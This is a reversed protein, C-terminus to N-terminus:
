SAIKKGSSRVETPYLEPVFVAAAGSAGALTARCTFACVRLLSNSISLSVYQPLAMVLAAAAAVLFLAGLALRRGLHDLVRRMALLAGIETLISVALVSYVFSCADSMYVSSRGEDEFELEILAVISFYGFGLLFQMTHVCVTTGWLVPAFIDKFSPAPSITWPAHVLPGVETALQGNVSALLELLTRAERDRGRAMLWRPSNPLHQYTVGVALVGPLGALM